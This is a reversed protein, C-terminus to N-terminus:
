GFRFKAALILIAFVCVAGNTVILAPDRLLVGYSLWGVSQAVLLTLTGYSLDRTSRTTWSRIVQPLFASITLLSALSGVVTVLKPM